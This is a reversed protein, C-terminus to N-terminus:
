PRAATRPARWAPATEAAWDLVGRAVGGAAMEQWAPTNIRERDVLSTLFGLEILISPTGPAKLVRFEARRHPRSRLLEVEDNLATLTVEALRDAEAMSGRHALEILVRAVDDGVAGAEAGALVDARNEREALQAAAADTAEPALTYVSVGSAEGETVTDAHLSIFVHAGARQAIRVREGLPLFIDRDRTLVARAEGSAELHRALRQAFALVVHKEMVDGATAGPDIGGHGPDIAVVLRPDGPQAPPVPAGGAEWRAGAPWGARAAFDEASVQLLTFEVGAGGDVQAARSVRMPRDLPVVVRARDPRFLGFRPTGLPTELAPTRAPGEGTSSVYDIVLRRPEDLTFFTFPAAESLTMSLVIGGPIDRTALGSLRVEPVSAAGRRAGTSADEDPVDAGAPESAAMAGLPAWLLSAAVLAAFWRAARVPHRARSLGRSM